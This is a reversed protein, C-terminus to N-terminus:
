RCYIRVTNLAVSSVVPKTMKGTDGTLRVVLAAGLPTVRGVTVSLMDDIVTACGGTVPAMDLGHRRSTVRDQAPADLMYVTRRIDLGIARDTREVPVLARPGTGAVDTVEIFRDGPAAGQVAIAAMAGIGGREGGLLVRGVDGGAGIRREARCQTTDLAM